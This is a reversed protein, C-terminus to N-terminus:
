ELNKMGGIKKKEKEKKKTELHEAPIFFVGLNM